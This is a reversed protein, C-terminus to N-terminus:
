LRFYLEFSSEVNIMSINGFKRLVNNKIDYISFICVFVVRSSKLNLAKQRYKANLIRAAQAIRMCSTYLPRSHIIKIKMSKKNHEKTSNNCWNKDPIVYERGVFFFTNQFGRWLYCSQFGLIDLPKLVCSSIFSQEVPEIIKLAIVFFSPQILGFSLSYYNKLVLALMIGQAGLRCRYGLDNFSLVDSESASKITLSDSVFTMQIQHNAAVVQDSIPWKTFRFCKINEVGIQLIQKELLKVSTKTLSRVASKWKVHVDIVERIGYWVESWLYTM